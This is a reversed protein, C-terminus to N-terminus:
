VQLKAEYHLLGDMMKDLYFKEFENNLVKCHNTGEKLEKVLAEIALLEKYLRSYKDELHQLESM